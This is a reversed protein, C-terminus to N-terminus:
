KILGHFVRFRPKVVTLIAVLHIELLILVHSHLLGSDTLVESL